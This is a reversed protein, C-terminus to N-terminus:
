ICTGASITISYNDYDYEIKIDARDEFNSDYYVAFSDDDENEFFKDSLNEFKFVHDKELNYMPETYEVNTADAYKAKLQM